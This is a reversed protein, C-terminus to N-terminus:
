IWPYIAHNQQMSVLLFARIAAAIYPCAGSNPCDLWAHLNAPGLLQPPLAYASPMRHTHPQPLGVGHFGLNRASTQLLGFFRYWTQGVDSVDFPVEGGTVTQISGEDPSFEITFRDGPNNGAPLALENPALDAQNPLTPIAYPGQELWALFEALTPNM